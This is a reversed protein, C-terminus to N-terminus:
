GDGEERKRELQQGLKEAEARFVGSREALSAIVTEEGRVRAWLRLRPVYFTVLLGAVLLGAAVWIVNAGPDKRVEIGAFERRGEFTYERGAVTVPDGPFLTLAQRDVAGLITLFPTGEPTESLVAVPLENDGPLGAAATSPLGTLEVFQWELGGASQSGGAPVVFLADQRDREYVVLNWAEDEDRVVGVWYQGGDGPVTVPTGAAEGLFDSPVIVDDLLVAGSADRVVVAPAPVLDDLRLTSSYLANGSGADRVVLAAGEGFYGAQHFRYGGYTLPHNVTTEGRAVVEGGQYIILESRYDVARGSEDFAAVADVVEVQMQDPHSVPFVPSSTGEAIFSASTYGGFQSILGGALLLVLAIHTFVGGLQAWAFRDAFLYTTEGREVARVRFRRGRLLAALPGAGPGSPLVARNAARDFFSDPLLERPSTVNRWIALVRDAAYVCISFALLGLAAIFWWASVITFLGARHMPETFPGFTGRQGELWVDVAASSDRVGAPVQPLVVALLGAVVLIGILAVALQASALLRWAWVLLDYSRVARWWGPAREVEARAM